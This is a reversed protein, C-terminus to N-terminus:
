LSCPQLFRDDSGLSELPRPLSSASSGDASYGAARCYNTLLGVTVGFANVIIRDVDMDPNSNESLLFSSQERKKKQLFVHRVGAVVAPGRAGRDELALVCQMQESLLKVSINGTLATPASASVSKM